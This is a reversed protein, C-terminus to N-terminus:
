ENFASGNFLFVQSFKKYMNKDHRRMRHFAEWDKSGVVLIITTGDTSTWTEMSVNEM